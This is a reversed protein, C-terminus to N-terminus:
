LRRWYKELLFGKSVDRNLKRVTNSLLANEKLLSEQSRSASSHHAIDSADPKEKRETPTETVSEGLRVDTLPLHMLLDEVTIVSLSSSSEFHM